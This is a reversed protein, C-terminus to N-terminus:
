KESHRWGYRNEQLNEYAIKYASIFYHFSQGKTWSFVKKQFSKVFVLPLVENLYLFLKGLGFPVNRGPSHNRSFLPLHRLYASYVTNSSVLM